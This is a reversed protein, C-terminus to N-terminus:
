DIQDFGVKIPIPNTHEDINRVLYMLAAIADYHGLTKSRSFESRQENWVGYKLSDILLKCSEDIEIRGQSVWVRVQNVMVHLLDKSTAKFHLDHLSGLDILLLPNNSDAVAKHPKQDGWLDKQYTKIAEALKPTTMEPGNMVHEREIILKARVFDYYAFLTVNLDRVGLDMAIYKHYLPYHDDKSHRKYEYDRMEPVIALTQDTIFQCMYERLWDTETLCEKRYEEKIEPTVMPNKDINLEVYANEYKAKLCFDVFDHDPTKSPTSFMIVRAGERFMTMPIVVSSYIYSLNKIFGAEDFIYLDCYNGRGGDPKRDLGILQIESGNDFIYKKKSDLYRPKIDEPCDELVKEFAPLIFEELDVLFATAIKIRANKVRRAVQLAEIVIWYTKGFRRACNAVFLKATVQRYAEDIVKQGAHFKWSLDNRRWLEAKALEILEDRNLM